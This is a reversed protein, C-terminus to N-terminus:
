RLVAGKLMTAPDINEVVDIEGCSVAREYDEPVDIDWLPPLEAMLIGCAEARKRTELMVRSTGWPMSRFLEPAPRKLGVLMYGGDEVPIFVANTGSRLREACAVLHEATLVACDTGILLTPTTACTVRLAHHMRDGLDGEIQDFLPIDYRESLSAFATERKSPSCWLFIPGIEAARAVSITREILTWQLNAAGKAGLRPILRTKAFGEIPAKAFIAIAVPEPHEQSM